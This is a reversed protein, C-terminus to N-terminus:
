RVKRKSEQIFILLIISVLASATLFWWGLTYSGTADAMWGFIPPGVLNGILSISAAYGVALGANEKGAFESALVLNMGGWGIATFGFLVIIGLMVWYPTSASIMQMLITFVLILAGVIILPKRRSGGFVRDSLAGFFPKGVAGGLNALALYGGAVAVSVGVVEKLYIVLYGTFAFECVCLGMCALAVLLINRDLIVGRVAAWSAGGKGSVKPPEEGVPERYLTYAAVSAAIPILAVPIFAARWGYVLALTPLASATLVGAVNLSTQNIGIATARERLPFWHLVAKTAVTPFCGCGFGALAMVALAAPFGGVFYMGLVFSGAVLPGVLLMKRVGVRDVLWGAPIQFAMYGFASASVLLGVEFRSLSLGEILFPSLPAVATRVLYASMYAMWTVGLVAWRFRGSDAGM